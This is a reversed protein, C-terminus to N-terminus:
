PVLGTAGTSPRRWMEVPAADALCLGRSHDGVSRLVPSSRMGARRGVLVPGRNFGGAVPRYPFYGGYGYPYYGYGYPNYGYGYRSYGFGSAWGGYPWGRCSNHFWTSYSYCNLYADHLYISSYVNTHSYSSEGYVRYGIVDYDFGNPGAISQVLNALDSEPNTSSPDIELRTYDWRDALVVEEFRWPEKALATFILGTGDGSARFAEQANADRVEYRRGARVM